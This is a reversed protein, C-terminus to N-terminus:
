VVVAGGDEGAAAGVATAAVAAERWGLWGRLVSPLDYSYVMHRLVSRGRTLM